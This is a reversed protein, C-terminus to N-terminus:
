FPLAQGNHFHVTQIVNNAVVNMYFAAVGFLLFLNTWSPKTRQMSIIFLAAVVAKAAVVVWMIHLRGYHAVTNLLQNQEHLVGTDLAFFTSVADFVQLVIILMFLAKIAPLLQAPTITRWNPKNM